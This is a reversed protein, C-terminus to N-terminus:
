VTQPLPHDSTRTLPWDLALCFYWILNSSGNCRQYTQLSCNLNKLIFYKARFHCLSKNHLPLTTVTVSATWALAPHGHLLLDHDSELGGLLGVVVLGIDVAHWVPVLRWFWDLFWTWCTQNGEWGAGASFTQSLAARISRWLSIRMQLALTLSITLYISSMERLGMKWCHCPGGHLLDGQHYPSKVRYCFIVNKYCHRKM